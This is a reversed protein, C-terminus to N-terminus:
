QVGVEFGAGAVWMSFKATVLRLVASEATSLTM